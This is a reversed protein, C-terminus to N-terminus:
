RLLLMKKTVYYSLINMRYYYIGSPLSGANFNIAHWGTNQYEDAMTCIKEGLINFAELRVQSNEPVYYCIRTDKNFPNPYNYLLSFSEPIESKVSNNDIDESIDLVEGITNLLPQSDNIYDQGLAWIKVGGLNWDKAYECKIRISLTDDFTILKTNTSNTLYPVQSVDDWHYIWGSEIKPVIQSYNLANGGTSPGYLESTNFEKGFFPIGILINESSIGISLLYQIGQHASGEQEGPAAYLPANHGSHDTWTGYYDYTMCGIWDLHNKLAAYDFRQGSWSGSPVAMSLSMSSDIENLASRLEIVLTTLNSRDADTSPYEWDIDIGDYDYDICFNTVNEVFQARAVSSAVMDSFGDCQGWGGISVIIKKGANHTETILQNYHFYSYTSLSGNANPWIFAHAIHTLNEYEIKDAPLISRNWAPYYGVVIEDSFSSVFRLSILLVLKFSISQSSQYYLIKM